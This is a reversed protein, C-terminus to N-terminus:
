NLFYRGIMLASAIVALAVNTLTLLDRWLPPKPQPPSQPAQQQIVDGQVDGTVVVGSINRAKIVTRGLNLGLLAFLILGAWLVLNSEM